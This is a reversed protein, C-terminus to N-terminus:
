YECSFRHPEQLVYFLATQKLKCLM